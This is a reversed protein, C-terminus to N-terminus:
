PYTDRLSRVRLGAKFDDLTFPAHATFELDRQEGALLMFACDDFAGVINLSEVTAHAATGNGVLTLHAGSGFHYPLRGKVLLGTVTPLRRRSAVFTVGHSWPARRDCSRGLSAEPQVLTVKKSPTLVVFNVLLGTRLSMVQAQVHM